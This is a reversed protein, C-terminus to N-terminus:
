IPKTKFFAEEYEKYKENNPVRDKKIWTRYEQYRKISEKSIYGREKAEDLFDERSCETSFMFYGTSVSNSEADINYIAKIHKEIDEAIYIYSGMYDTKVLCNMIAADFFNTIGNVTFKYKGDEKILERIIFQPSHRGNPNNMLAPVTTALMGEGFIRCIAGNRVRDKEVHYGKSQLKSICLSNFKEMDEAIVLFDKIGPFEDNKMIEYSVRKGPLVQINHEACIELLDTHM